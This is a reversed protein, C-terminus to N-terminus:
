LEDADHVPPSDSDRLVIAKALLERKDGSERSVEEYLLGNEYEKVFVYTSLTSMRGKQRTDYTTLVVLSTTDKMTFTLMTSPKSADGGSDRYSTSRSYGAM